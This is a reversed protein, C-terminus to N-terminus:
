LLDDEVAQHRFLHAFSEGRPYTAPHYETVPRGAEQAEDPLRFSDRAEVVRAALLRELAREVTWRSLGREEVVEDVTRCGHVLVARRVSEVQEDFQAGSAGVQRVEELARTLVDALPPTSFTGLLALLERELSRARQADRGRPGRLAKRCERCESQRRDKRANNISFSSLPLRRRCPGSCSKM